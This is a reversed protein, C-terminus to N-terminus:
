PMPMLALATLLQLAYIVLFFLIFHIGGLQKFMYLFRMSMCEDIVGFVVKLSRYLIMYLLTINLYENLEFYSYLPM